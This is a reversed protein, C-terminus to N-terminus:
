GDCVKARRQEEERAAQEITRRREAEDEQASRQKRGSSPKRPRRHERLAKKYESLTQAIFPRDAAELWGKEEGSAPGPRQIQRYSTRFPGLAPGPSQETRILGDDQRKSEQAITPTHLEERPSQHSASTPGAEIHRDIEKWGIHLRTSLIAPPSESPPHADTAQEPKTSV